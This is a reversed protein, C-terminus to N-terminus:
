RRNSTSRALFIGTSTVWLLLLPLSVWAALAPGSLLFLYGVGSIVISMALAAGLYSLWRPAALRGRRALVIGTVALAALLFMKPGDLRNIAANLSAVSNADGHAIVRGTFDLGLLFQTFSIISAAMGTALASLALRREGAARAAGALAWVVVMLALAPVGETFLFQLAAPVRHGAYATILQAGSPHVQASSSFILLGVVWSGAYVLGALGPSPRRWYRRARGPRVDVSLSALYNM